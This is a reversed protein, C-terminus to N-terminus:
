EHKQRKNDPQPARVCERLVRTEGAGRKGVQFLVRYVLTITCVDLLGKLKNHKTTTEQARPDASLCFPYVGNENCFAIRRLCDVTVCHRIEEGEAERKGKYCVLFTGETQGMIQAMGITHPTQVRLLLVRANALAMKVKANDLANFQLPDQSIATAIKKSILLYGVAFNLADILCTRDGTHWFRRLLV